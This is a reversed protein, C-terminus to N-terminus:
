SPTTPVFDTMYSTLSGKEHAEQNASRWACCSSFAVTVISVVAHVLIAASESIWLASIVTRIANQKFLGVIQFSGSGESTVQDGSPARLLLFLHMGVVCIDLVVLFLTMIIYISEIVPRYRETKNQILSSGFGATFFGVIMILLGSGLRGILESNLGFAGHELHGLSLITIEVLGILASLCWIANNLKEFNANSIRKACCRKMKINKTTIGM